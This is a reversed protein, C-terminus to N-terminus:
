YYLYVHRIVKFILPTAMVQTFLVEYMIHNSLDM